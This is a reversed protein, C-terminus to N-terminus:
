NARVTFIEIKWPRYKLHIECCVRESTWKCFMENMKMIDMNNRIRKIVEGQLVSMKDHKGHQTCGEKRGPPTEVQKDWKWRGCLKVLSNQISEKKRFSKLWIFWSRSTYETRWAVYLVWDACEVAINFWKSAYLEFFFFSVGWNEVSHAGRKGVSCWYSYVSRCQNNM